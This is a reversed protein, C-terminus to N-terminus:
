ASQSLTWTLLLCLMQKNDAFVSVDVASFGEQQALGVIHEVLKRGVGRRRHGPRVVLGLLEFGFIADPKIVGIGIIQGGPEFAAYYDVGSKLHSKFWNAVTQDEFPKLTFSLYKLADPANALELYAVKLEAFDSEDTAPSYKRIM